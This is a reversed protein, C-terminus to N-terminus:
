FMVEFITKVGIFFEIRNNMMLQCMAAMEFIYTQKPNGQVYEVKIETNTPLPRPVSSPSSICICTFWKPCKKNVKSKSSLRLFAAESGPESTRITFTEESPCLNVIGFPSSISLGLYNITIKYQSIRCIELLQKWSWLEPWLGRIDKYRFQNEHVESFSFKKHINKKTM